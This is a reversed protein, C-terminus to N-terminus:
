LISNEKFSWPRHVQGQMVRGRKHSVSCLQGLIAKVHHHRGSSFSEVREGWTWRRKYSGHVTIVVFKILIRGTRASTKLAPPFVSTVSSIAKWSKTFAGLFHLRRLCDQWFNWASPPLPIAQLMALSRYLFPAVLVSCGAFQRAEAVVRRKAVSHLAHTTWSHSITLYARWSDRSWVWGV